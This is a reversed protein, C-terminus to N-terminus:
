SEWFRLLMAANRPLLIIKFFKLTKLMSGRRFHFLITKAALVIKKMESTTGHQFLVIKFFKLGLGGSNTVMSFM